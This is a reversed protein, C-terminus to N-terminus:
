PGGFTPAGAPRLGTVNGHPGHRVVVGRGAHAIATPARRRSPRTRVRPATTQPDGMCLNPSVLTAGDISVDLNLDRRKANYKVDARIRPSAGTGTTLTAGSATAHPDVDLSIPASANGSADNILEEAGAVERVIRNVAM